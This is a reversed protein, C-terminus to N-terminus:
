GIYDNRTINSGKRKSKNIFDEKSLPKSELGILRHAMEICLEVSNPTVMKMLITLNNSVANSLELPSDDLYEKMVIDQEALFSKTAKNLRKMIEELKSVDIKEDVDLVYTEM